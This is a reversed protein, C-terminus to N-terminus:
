EDERGAADGGFAQEIEKEAAGLLLLRPLGIEESIRKAEILLM